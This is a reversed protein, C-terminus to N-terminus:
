HGLADIGALLSRKVEEPAFSARVGTRALEALDGRDLGFVEHCLLYERDLDTHFMGPDDTALTVPVGADLLRPLPHDALNEVAGTRVNSTPCVELTVGEAALRRLLEDDAVANIGHGIREAHLEDLAERVQDPGTTEGAHPVCHLGADRALAFAERFARRPADAEFGGLGFGATGPPRHDVAYRASTLGFDRDWLGPVDFVWALEVGHEEKARARSTTLAEDLEEPAIGARLHSTASVTVEAYRVNRRAQEAALGLVLEAVDDGTTVLDNVAAYVDIFHGFDTFEYFRLLDAEDTPVGLEPHRRALTLVTAPSASGVLHVHLEVKPLAAIFDRM